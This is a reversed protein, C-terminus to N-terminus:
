CTRTRIRMSTACTVARIWRPPRSRSPRMCRMPISFRMWSACCRSSSGIPLRMFCCRKSRSGPSRPSSLSRALLVWGVRLREAVSGAALPAAIIMGRILIEVAPVYAWELALVGRQLWARASSAGRPLRVHGCRSPRLSSAFAEEETACLECHVRRQDLEHAHGASRQRERLRSLPTTYVNM